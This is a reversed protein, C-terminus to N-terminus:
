VNSNWAYIEPGYGFIFDNNVHRRTELNNMEGEEEEKKRQQSPPPRRPAQQTLNNSTRNKSKSQGTNKKRVHTGEAKQQTRIGASGRGTGQGVGPVM